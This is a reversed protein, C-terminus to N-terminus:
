RANVIASASSDSGSYFGQGSGTWGQFQWGSNASAVSQFHAGSNFWGGGVSISGGSAPALATTVYYQHNYAAVISGPASLTSTASDTTWRESSSSGTLPNSFSYPAADAWTQTGMTSTIQSGFQQCTIAPPSYGTGGGIISFNFTVLYQHYFVLNITQPSIATGTTPQSTQWREVSTSLSLPNTVSWTTGSDITFTQNSTTLTATKQTGGAVYTLVPPSSTGTGGAISYAFTLIVTSIGSSGGSLGGTIFQTANISETAGNSTLTQFQTPNTFTFPSPTSASFVQRISGNQSVSIEDIWMWASSIAPGNDYYTINQEDGYYPATHYWETMLGTWFGAKSAVSSPNGVFTTAGAAIYTEQAHAGTNQDSGLMTVNGNSFSLSLTVLDGNNVPSFTAIGGGGDSPFISNGSPNFVEYSLQFGSGVSWNFSLGVQYWYGTNGLGNVLYAPGYGDAGSQGVAAITYSLSPMDQTFTCAIQEDYATSIQPRTSNNAGLRPLAPLPAPQRQTQPATQGINIALLAVISLSAYLYTIWRKKM